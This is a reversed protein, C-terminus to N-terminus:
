YRSSSRGKAGKATKDSSRNFSIGTWRARTFCLRNDRIIRLTSNPDAIKTRVALNVTEEDKSMEEIKPIAGITTPANITAKPVDNGSNLRLRM